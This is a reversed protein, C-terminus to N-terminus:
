GLSREPSSRLGSSGESRGAIQFRIEDVVVHPLEARIRAVLTEKLFSFEQAWAPGEVGVILRRGALKLPFSRRAVPGGVLSEWRSRIDLLLGKEDLGRAGIAAPLIAALPVPSSKKRPM